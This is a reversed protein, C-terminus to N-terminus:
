EEDGSAAEFTGDADKCKKRAEAETFKDTPFRLTQATTKGKIKGFIVRTGSPMTKSLFKAKKGGVEFADEDFKGSEVLVCAHEKPYPM